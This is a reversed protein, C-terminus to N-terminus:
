TNTRKYLTESEDRDRVDRESIYIKKLELLLVNGSSTRHMKAFIGEVFVVTVEIHASKQVGITINGQQTSTPSVVTSVQKVQSSQFREVHTLEFYRSLGCRCTIL